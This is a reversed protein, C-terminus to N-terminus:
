TCHLRLRRDTMGWSGESGSVPSVGGSLSGELIIVLVCSPSGDKGPKFPFIHHLSYKTGHQLTTHNRIIFTALQRQQKDTRYTSNSGLYKSFLICCAAATQTVTVCKSKDPLQLALFQHYFYSLLFKYKWMFTCSLAVVEVAMEVIARLLLAELNVWTPVPASTM